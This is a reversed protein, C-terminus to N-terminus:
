FNENQISQYYLKNISSISTRFTPNFWLQGPGIAMRETLVRKLQDKDMCIGPAVDAYRRLDTPSQRPRQHM